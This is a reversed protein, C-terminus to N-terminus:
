REPFNSLQINSRSLLESIQFLYKFVNQIDQLKFDSLFFRTKFFLSLRVHISRMRVFSGRDYQVISM